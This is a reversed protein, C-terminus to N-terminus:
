KAEDGTNCFDALAALYNFGELGFMRRGSDAVVSKTSFGYNIDFFAHGRAVGSCLLLVGPM